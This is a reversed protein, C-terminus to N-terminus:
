VGQVHALAAAHMGDLLQRSHQALPAQMAAQPVVAGAAEFAAGADACFAQLAQLDSLGRCGKGARCAVRQM